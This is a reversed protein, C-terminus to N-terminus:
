KNERAFEKKLKYAAITTSMLWVLAASIAKVPQNNMLETFRTLQLNKTQAENLDAVSYIRSPHGKLSIHLGGKEPSISIDLLSFVAQSDFEVFASSPFHLAGISPYDLYTLTAETDEVLASEFRQPITNPIPRVFMPSSIQLTRTLLVDSATHFSPALFLEVVGSQTRIALAPNGGKMSASLTVPDNASIVRNGARVECDRSEVQIPSSAFVGFAPNQLNVSAKLEVQNERDALEEMGESKSTRTGHRQLEKPLELTVISGPSVIVPDTTLLKNTTASTVRVFPLYGPGGGSFIIRPEGLSVPTWADSPYSHESSNFRSVDAIRLVDADFELARVNSIAFSKTDLSRFLEGRQSINALAFSIRSVTLDVKVNSEFHANMLALIVAVAVLSPLAM